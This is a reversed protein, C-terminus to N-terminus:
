IKIEKFQIIATSGLRQYYSVYLLIM